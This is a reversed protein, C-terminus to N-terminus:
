ACVCVNSGEEIDRERVCVCQGRRQYGERINRESVCVCQRGQDRLSIFFDNKIALSFTTEGVYRIDSESVCV